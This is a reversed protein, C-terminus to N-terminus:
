QHYLHAGSQHDVGPSGQNSLVAAAARVLNQPNWVKDALSYWKRVVMRTEEVFHGLRGQRP